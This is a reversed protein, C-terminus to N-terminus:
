YQRCLWRELVEINNTQKLASNIAKEIYKEMIFQYLSLYKLNNM